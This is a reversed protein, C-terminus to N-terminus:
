SLSKLEFKYKTHIEPYLEKLYNIVCEAYKKDRNASNTMVKNISKVLLKKQEESKVYEFIDGLKEALEKALDSDIKKEVGYSFLQM